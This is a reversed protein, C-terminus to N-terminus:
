GFTCLIVPPVSNLKSCLEIPNVYDSELDSYSIIFFVMAFLLVASLILGIAFILAELM